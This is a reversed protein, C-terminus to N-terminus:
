KKHSVWRWVLRPPGYAQCSHAFKKYESSELFKPDKEMERGIYAPVFAHPKTANFEFYGGRIRIGTVARKSKFDDRTTVNWYKRQCQVFVANEDWYVPSVRFVPNQEPGLAHDTDTHAEMWGCCVLDEQRRSNAGVNYTAVTVYNSARINQLNLETLTDILKLM